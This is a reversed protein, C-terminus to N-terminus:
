PHTNGTTHHRDPSSPTGADLGDYHHPTLLSIMEHRLKSRGRKPVRHSGGSLRGLYRSSILCFSEYFPGTLYVYMDPAMSPTWHALASFVPNDLAGARSLGLRFATVPSALYFGRM